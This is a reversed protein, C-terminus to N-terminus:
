EEPTREFWALTDALGEELGTGPTWGLAARARSSDFVMRQIEGHRPPQYAPLRASGALRGLTAHLQNVSTEQGSGIVLAQGDAASLALVAARACDKVYVFDRTQTGDGFIDCQENRVMRGAFIAVVGAEGLEDQRPGYANAYRLATWALGAGTATVRLYEEVVGKSIGYESIPVTPHDESVPVWQPEGFVAASSSYVIKRAGSRAGAAIVALSGLINVAADFAPERTSRRVDVQAAYHAVAEPREASFIADLAAEDRIDAQHFPVGSPVNARRGTSLDDLVAVEHGAELMADAVHSGIFGAGGTVLVKM